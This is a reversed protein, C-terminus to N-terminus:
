CALTKGSEPAWLDEVAACVSGTCATIGEDSASSEAAMDKVDDRIHRIRSPQWCTGCGSRFYVRHM